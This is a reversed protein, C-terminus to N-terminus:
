PTFAGTVCFQGNGTCLREGVEFGDDSVTMTGDTRQGGLTGFGTNTSPVPKAVTGGDSGADQTGSDTGGDVGGTGSDGGGDAGGTGAGGSGGMGGTGGGGDTLGGDTLGGDRNDRTFPLLEGPDINADVCNGARCTKTDACSLKGLCLDEFLMPLTLTKGKVYGSIARVQVLADGAADYATAIVVFVRDTGGKRPVLAAELPWAIADDGDTLSRQGRPEWGSIPGTGSLVEIDVNVAMARVAPEAEIVVMVQTRPVTETGGCGSSALLGLLLVLNARLTM